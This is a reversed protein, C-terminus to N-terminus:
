TILSFNKLGNIVSALRSKVVCPESTQISFPMDALVGRVFGRLWLISVIPNSGQLCVYPVQLCKPCVFRVDVNQVIFIPMVM